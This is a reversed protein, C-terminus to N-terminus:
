RKREKPWPYDNKGAAPEVMGPPLTKQWDLAKAALREVIDARQAAVNKQESPDTLLLLCTRSTMQM